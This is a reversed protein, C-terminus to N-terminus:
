RPSVRAEAALHRDGDQPCGVGPGRREGREALLSPGDGGEPVM